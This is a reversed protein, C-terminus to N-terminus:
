RMFKMMQLLREIREVEAAPKGIKLVQIIADMEQQSFRIGKSKSQSAATMLFPLLDNQTKRSGQQALANLMALKSADMGALNPHNMWSSNEEQTNKQKQSNNSDNM